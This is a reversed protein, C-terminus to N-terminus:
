HFNEVLRIDSGSQDVQTFLLSRGDPAVTIGRTGGAIPKEMVYIRTVEGTAFRFFEIVPHRPDEDTAFYIGDAAVTWYPKNGARHYDLIMKGEGDEVPARWIGPTLRAKTYYLYKGDLSELAEYGGHKTVQVAHGGESRMKWIQLNGSRNSCFYIWRGDRSWSPVTEETPETTLRRPGGIGPSVMWIDRNGQALSDFVITRGDPSWRPTGTNTNNLNTLKILNAGDSDCVWIEGSGTRGSLFAIRKGDPSYQPCNDGYTSSILKTPSPGEKASNSLSIRWINTDGFVETCALEKRRYSITPQLLGQAFVLTREPVGGHVSIRWLHPLSGGRLSAFVFERSEDTWALGFTRVNDFTLRQPEGGVVQTVFFDSAGISGMRAFALLKGDPSFTPSDDGVAGAPPSTLRERAGTEISLLFISFPEASSSKDAIAIFKGDPSYSLSQDNYPRVPFAEALKREAGGLAPVRYIGGGEGQRIFAIYRGDPSWAPNLDPAPNSTLRLPEGADVLKVYIDQNNEQEGDWVFAIQNGDPSFAPQTESGPFSTIPVIKPEAGSSKSESRTTFKYLGFAIGGISIVMAALALLVGKRHRKAKGTLNEPRVEEEIRRATAEHIEAQEAGVERVGAVFRYGRKPVTEIFKQGNEGDGLVKRIISINSSLNAEEVFTDPWVKKMLEDKELLHGHHEVLSLLLDFAKPTLPVAEGDRLLLHEAADLRFPGFEYIHKTQLSMAAGHIRGSIQMFNRLTEKPCDFSKAAADPTVDAACHASNPIFRSRSM